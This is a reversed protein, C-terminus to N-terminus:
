GLTTTYWCVKLVDIELPPLEIADRESEAKMRGANLGTEGVGQRGLNQGM